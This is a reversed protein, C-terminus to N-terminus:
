DQILTRLAFVSLPFQLQLCRLYLEACRPSLWLKLGSTDQLTNSIIAELGNCGEQFM